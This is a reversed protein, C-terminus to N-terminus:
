LHFGGSSLGLKGSGVLILIIGVFGLIAQFFTILLNFSNVMATPLSINGNATAITTVGAGNDTGSIRWTASAGGTLFFTGIFPAVVTLILMVIASGIM